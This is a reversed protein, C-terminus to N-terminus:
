SSRRPSSRGGGTRAEDLRAISLLFVRRLVMLMTVAFHVLLTAAVASVLRQVMDQGGVAAVALVVAAVIAILSAYSANAQLERFLQAQRSTQSGPQPDSDAWATISGLLQVALQFLFAGAVGAVTLLGIALVGTVRVDFSGVIVGVALPLVFAVLQDARRVKGTAANVLTALHANIIPRPDAKGEAGGM